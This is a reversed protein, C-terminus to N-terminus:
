CDVEDSKRVRMLAERSADHLLLQLSLKCPWLLLLAGIATARPLSLSSVNHVCLLPHSGSLRRRCIYQSSLSDFVQTKEATFVLIVHLKPMNCRVICEGSYSWPSLATHEGAWGKDLVSKGWFTHQCGLFSELTQLSVSRPLM